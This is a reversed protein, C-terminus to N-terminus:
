VNVNKWKNDHKFRMYQTQPNFFDGDDGVYRSIMQPYLTMKRGAWDPQSGALGHSLVACYNIYKDMRWSLIKNERYEPDYYLSQTGSDWRVPDTAWSYNRSSWQAGDQQFPLTRFTYPDLGFPHQYIDDRDANYAPYTVNNNDNAWGAYNADVYYAQHGTKIINGTAKLYQFLDVYFRPTGVNQYAM